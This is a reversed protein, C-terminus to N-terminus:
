FDVQLRAQVIRPDDNGMVDGDADADEDNDVIIYNLMLRIYPNFYYNFGFTINKGEGGTIPGDNLDITSYRTALELAGLKSMPTVRGFAGKKFKYHRSEGTLFWSGYVYWGDFDVDESGNDRGINTYIYEGQLSFPGLVGSAELGYKILSDMNKIKDTDVYKIDTVHSEPRADFKVKKEDDPIRYSAAAGLHLARTDLHVPSYTLRGTVGWGEDGEDDADDDFEEGFVGAAATWVEGHTHIGIGINRDPAFENPLAREMFTIFKSSTLEELSFPEKFQGVTIRTPFFANYRIYADSIDADGDAFDIEFQYDWDGFIIGKTDIRAKRLETGDGLANKDEDYYAADVFVRGGLKFSFNGDYTQVEVGGKSIVKVDVRSSQEEQAKHETTQKLKDYQEQTITGNDRLIILLEQPETNEAFAMNAIATM